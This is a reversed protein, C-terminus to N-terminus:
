CRLGPLGGRERHRFTRAPSLEPSDSSRAANPSACALEEDTTAPTKLPMPPRPMPPRDELRLGNDFCVALVIPAGFTDDNPTPELVIPPGFIDDHDTLWLNDDNPAPELGKGFTDANCAPKATTSATTKTIQPALFLPEM